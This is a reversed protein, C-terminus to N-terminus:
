RPYRMRIGDFAGRLRVSMEPYGVEGETRVTGGAVRGTGRDIVARDPYILTVVELEEVAYPFDDAQFRGKRLAAVGNFLPDDTTGAVSSLLEIRGTLDGKLGLKELWEAPAAAQVRLDLPRAGSEDASGAEGVLFVEANGEPSELFLSEFEIKGDRLVVRAPEILRLRQDAVILDLRQSKAVVTVPEGPLADLLIELTADGDVERMLEQPGGGLSALVEGVNVSSFTVTGNTGLANREGSAEFAGVGPLTGAASGSEGDWRLSVDASDSGNRSARLEAQLQPTAMKGSLAVSGDLQFREGSGERVIEAKALRLQAQVEGTDVRWRGEGRLRGARVSRLTELEVLQDRLSGRVDLDGGFRLTENMLEQSLDALRGEFFLGEEQSSASLRSSPLYGLNGTARGRFGLAPVFSELPWDNLEGTLDQVLRLGRINDGRESLLSM